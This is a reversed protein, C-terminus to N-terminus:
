KPSNKLKEWEIIAIQAMARYQSKIREPRWEWDAETMACFDANFLEFAVKEIQEKVFSAPAGGAGIIGLGGAQSVAAALNHEAVWAMGGQIIPYEIGLLETVRTKMNHKM